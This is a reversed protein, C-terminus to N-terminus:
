LPRNKILEPKQKQAFHIKNYVALPYLGTERNPPLEENNNECFLCFM